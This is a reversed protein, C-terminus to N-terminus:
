EEEIKAKITVTKPKRLQDIFHAACAQAKEDSDYAALEVETGSNMCAHVKNNFPIIEEILSANVFSGKNTEIWKM